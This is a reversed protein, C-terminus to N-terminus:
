AAGGSGDGGLRPGGAVGGGDAQKGAGAKDASAGAKPGAVVAKAQEHNVESKAKAKGGRRGAESHPVKMHSRAWEMRKKPNQRVELPAQSPERAKTPDENFWSRVTRNEKLAEVSAAKVADGPAAYGAAWEKRCLLVNGKTQGVMETFGLEAWVNILHARDGFCVLRTHMLCPELARVLEPSCGDEMSVLEYRGGFVQALEWPTVRVGWGQDQPQLAQVRQESLPKHKETAVAAAVRGLVCSMKGNGKHNGILRLFQQPDAEVLVGRWGQDSLARTNSNNYGDGAGLDLFTPQDKIAGMKGLVDLIISQEGNRSYDRESQTVTM